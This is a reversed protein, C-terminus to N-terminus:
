GEWIDASMVSGLSLGGELHCARGKSAWSTSPRPIFCILNFKRNHPRLFNSLKESAEYITDTTQLLVGARIGGWM